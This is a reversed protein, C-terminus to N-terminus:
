RFWHQLITLQVRLFLSWVNENFFIRKFIDDAFHQGNRRPRLSNLRFCLEPWWKRCVAKSSVNRHRIVTQNLQRPCRPCSCHKYRVLLLSISINKECFPMKRTFGGVLTPICLTLPGIPSRHKSLYVYMGDGHFRGDCFIEKGTERKIPWMKVLM